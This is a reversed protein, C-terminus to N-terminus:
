RAPAGSSPMALQLGIALGSVLTVAALLMHLYLRTAASHGHKETKIM